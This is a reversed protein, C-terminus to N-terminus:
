RKAGGDAPVGRPRRDALAAMDRRCERCYGDELERLKGCRPCYGPKM